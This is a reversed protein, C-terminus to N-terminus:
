GLFTPNEDAVAYFAGSRTGVFIQGDWVAPTSEICGGLELSWLPTPSPGDALDFANLNGECDAQILTDDVVVPSSWLPGPLDLRWRLTGQDRDLGLVEGGNTAVIVLDGHLAPTAWVGSDLGENAERSWVLPDDPRSPDLKMIQGLERSRANGREYEAGLYLMGEEDIVVSADIDDGAWFRFVRTPEEGEKLGSIDWGQVLGGSNTFYVVDGSIAVSNEVSVQLDGLDELLDQDWSETSFAIEPDVTVMGQADYGRNLKVVFFRSNEGGVFLYDDIVLASSDWDNNWLTPQVAEASLTWLATPAPQDLAVVHFFNDRSGTYLLPYGDPDVTVTGKIIDNTFYPDLVPTGDDPDLFNVAQNYAGFALWWEGTAPSPFVTPQGTWGSGCWPKSVGAVSSTSCGIDFTWQISPASPVPGQGYFTRTPNGRFTLLGEITGLDSWPRGSSTPDIWVSPDPRFSSPPRLESVVSGVVRSGGLAQGDSGLASGEIGDTIGNATGVDAPNLQTTPGSTWQTARYEAVDGATALALAGAETRETVLKDFQGDLAFLSGVALACIM